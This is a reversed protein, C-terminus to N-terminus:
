SLIFCVYQKWLKLVETWNRPDQDWSNLRSQHYNQFYHLKRYKNLLDTHETPFTLLSFYQLIFSVLFAQALKKKGHLFCSKWFDLKKQDICIAYGLLNGWLDSAKECSIQIM